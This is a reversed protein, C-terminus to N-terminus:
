DEKSLKSMDEASPLERLLQGLEESLPALRKRVAYQNLWCIGGCMLGYGVTFVITFTSVGSLGFTFIETGIYIPLIYWWLVTKLLRKQRDVKEKEAGVFERVSIAPHKSPRKALVLILGIFIASVVLEVCGVRALPPIKTFYTVGFWCVIFVCAVLERVERWFIDRDFKHMKTKMKALLKEDSIPAVPEPGQQRWLERLKDDNMGAGKGADM